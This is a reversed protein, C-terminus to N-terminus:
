LTSPERQSLKNQLVDALSELEERETQSPTDGFRLKEYLTVFSGLTACTDKDLGSDSLRKSWERPTENDRRHQELSASRSVRDLIPTIEPDRGPRYIYTPTSSTETAKRPRKVWRWLWWLALLSLLKAYDGLSRTTLFTKIRLMMELPSLTFFNMFQRWTNLLWESISNAWDGGADPDDLTGPPTPDYRVWGKQDIYAELWAHAHKQRITYYDGILSKEQLVFGNIYRTPIGQSRMMLAGATAFFECHAPPRDILFEELATSSSEFPYDYGYTFNQQLYNTIFDAKREPDSVAGAIEEALRAVEPSVEDPIQLHEQRQDESLPPDLQTDSWGGQTPFLFYEGNITDTPRLQLLGDSYHQLTEIDVAVSHYDRPAYLTLGNGMRPYELRFSPGRQARPDDTICFEPIARVGEDTDVLIQNEPHIEEKTTNWRWFSNHDFESFTRGVLYLPPDDGYGRLVVVDSSNWRQISSLSTAAPFNIGSPSSLSLIGMLYSLKSESWNAASALSAMLTLTVLTPLLHRLGLSAGQFERLSFVTLILGISASIAVSRLDTSMSCAVLLAASLFTPAFGVSHSKQIVLSAAVLWSALLALAFTGIGIFLGTSEPSFIRTLIFCATLASITGIGLKLKNVPIYNQFRLAVVILLSSLLALPHFRAMWVLVAACWVVLAVTYRGLNSSM